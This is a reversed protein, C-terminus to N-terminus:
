VERPVWFSSRIFSLCERFFRVVCNVIEVVRGLVRRDLGEVFVAVLAPMRTIARASGECSRWLAGSNLTTHRNSYGWWIRGHLSCPDSVYRTPHVLSKSSQINGQEGSGGSLLIFSEFLKPWLISFHQATNIHKAEVINLKEDAAHIGKQTRCHLWSALPSVPHLKRPIHAHVLSWNWSEARFQMRSFHGPSIPRALSSWFSRQPQCYHLHMSIIITHGRLTYEAIEHVPQWSGTM